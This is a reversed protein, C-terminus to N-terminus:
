APVAFGTQNRSEKTSTIAITQQAFLSFLLLFIANCLLWTETLTAETRIQHMSNAPLSGRAAPPCAKTKKRQDLKRYIEIFKMLQKETFTSAIFWGM